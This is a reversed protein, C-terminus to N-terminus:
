REYIIVDHYRSESAGPHEYAHPKDASFSISDGPALDHTEDGVRM